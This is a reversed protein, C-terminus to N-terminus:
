KGLKEYKEVEEIKMDKDLQELYGRSGQNSPIRKISNLIRQISMLVDKGSYPKKSLEKDISMLVDREMQSFKYERDGGHDRLRKLSDIIDRDKLKRNVRFHKLFISEIAYFLSIFEFRNSDNIQDYGTGIQIPEEDKEESEMGIM